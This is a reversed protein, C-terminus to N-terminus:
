RKGRNLRVRQVPVSVEQADSAYTITASGYARLGDLAQEINEQVSEIDHVDTVEYECVITAKIKTKRIKIEPFSM